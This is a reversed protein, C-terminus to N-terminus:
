NADIKKSQASDQKKTYVLTKIEQVVQLKSRGTTNMSWRPSVQLKGKRNLM